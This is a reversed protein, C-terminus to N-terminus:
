ARHYLYRFALLAGAVIGAVTVFSGLALTSLGSLGQGITCGMAAIGGMGMLAAGVLHRALDDVGGFGEWHFRKTLLATIASGSIVGFVSVIGLTLVKSEDSFFLFWDLAYAVPAVFSLAEARGSNTALYVEELTQPHELVHGLDGSVWWMAVIIGGLGLGALLNIRGRFGIGCLAWVVLAAGILLGLTLAVSGVSLADPTTAVIEVLAQPLTAPGNFVQVAKDVTSVRLVGTIGKLTAFATVAMVLLVVWAKLSGSGARVLNRAGCGSALVMGFGFLLGGVGSSLWLWRSGGYLTHAPNIWGMHVLGTFGLMAVGAALVWQRLRTTDKMHVVDSLAGMVCFRTHLAIAGFILSLLFGAGLLLAHLRSLDTQDTVHFVM